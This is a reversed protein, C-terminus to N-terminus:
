AGAVWRCEALDSRQAHQEASSNQETERTVEMLDHENESDGAEEDRRNRWRAELPCLHLCKRQV